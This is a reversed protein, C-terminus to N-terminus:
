GQSNEVTNKGIPAIMGFYLIVALVNILGGWLRAWGFGAMEGGIRLVLSVHLLVLPIYFSSRYQIDLGLVAPFIIPAHGFVMSFVFGLFIAHLMSDYIPGATVGAYALGIVGSIIMWLYGSLLCVAIFQTLGSQKVTRRAIDFRLLWVAMGILGLSTLRIGPEYQFLMLVLGSIYIGIAVYNLWRAMRSPQILRSLELREGAITLILFGGWWLVLKFVQWGSLWLLNGALLALAGLAMVVTYSALHKRLVAVFIMVLGLSGLTLLVPGLNGLIGVASILGGVGSLLPALYTWPKGMAVARELSILTGFFGAVMLPGHSLALSPRLPPLQWGLRLLGAWTASLLTLMALFMLPIRFISQQKNM